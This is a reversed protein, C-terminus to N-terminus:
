SANTKQHQGIYGVVIKKENKDFFFGIRITEKPDKSTGKGLHEKLAENKGKWQVFYDDPYQGMTIESQNPEYHLETSAFSSEKLNINLSGTKSSHYATALWELGKFVREPNEYPCKKPGSKGKSVFVVKGDDYITKFQDVANEVSTFVTPDEDTEGKQMAIMSNRLNEIQQKYNHILSAQQSSEGELEEVRKTLEVNEDAYLNALGEYDNSNEVESIRSKLKTRRVQEISLPSATGISFMSITKLIENSTNKGVNKQLWFPHYIENGNQAFPWYIRIAGDWCNMSKPIMNEMRLSFHKDREVYVQAVGALKFALYEADLSPKNNFRDCSALVLPIRRNPDNLKYIFERVDDRKLVFPSTNLSYDGVNCTFNKNLSPVLSPRTVFFSRPRITGNIWGNSLTISTKVKKNDDSAIMSVQWNFEPDDRDPHSLQMGFLKTAKDHASVTKVVTKNNTTNSEDHFSDPLNPVQKSAWDKTIAIVDELNSSTIDFVAKYIPRM